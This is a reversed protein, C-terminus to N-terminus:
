GATGSDSPRRTLDSLCYTLVFLIVGVPLWWLVSGDNWWLLLGLTVVYAVVAGILGPTNRGRRAASAGLSALVSVVAFIAISM